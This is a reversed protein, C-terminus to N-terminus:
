DWDGLQLEEEAHQDGILAREQISIQPLKQWWSLGDDWLIGGRGKYDGHARQTDRQMQNTPLPTLSDDFTLVRKAIERQKTLKDLKTFLREIWRAPYKQGYQGHGSGDQFWRGFLEDDKWLIENPLLNM